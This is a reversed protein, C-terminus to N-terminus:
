NELTKQPKQPKGPQIKLQSLVDPVTIGKSVDLMVVNNVPILLIDGGKIPDLDMGPVQNAIRRAENITLWGGRIGTDAMQRLTEATEKVPNAYGLVLDPDGFLPLLDSNFFSCFYVLEPLTCYKQQHYDSADITSRNSNELIGIREPSTHFAQLMFDRGLKRGESYALDKMPPTLQVVQVPMESNSLLPRHANLVGVRDVKWEKELEALDAGPVNVLAGLHAGNKFYMDNFKVMAEDCYLEDDIGQAKSLGPSLPDKPDPRYPWLVREYDVTKVTSDVTFRWRPLPGRGDGNDIIIPGDHNFQHRAIPTLRSPHGDEDIEEVWLPSAGALLKMAVLTWMWASFPLRPHPRAMLDLIKHNHVRELKPKGDKGVTRRSLHWEVVSVDTAIADVPSGLRANTGFLRLFQESNRGSTANFKHWLGKGGIARGASLIATSVAKRVRSFLSAIGAEEIFFVRM